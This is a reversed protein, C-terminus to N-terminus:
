GNITVGPATYPNVTSDWPSPLARNTPASLQQPGLGKVIKGTLRKPAVLTFQGRQHGPGNYPLSYTKLRSMRM